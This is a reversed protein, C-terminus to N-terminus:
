RLVEADLLRNERLYEWVVEPVLAVLKAADYGKGRERVLTSSINSTVVEDKYYAHRPDALISGARDWDYGLRHIVHFSLNAAMWEAGRWRHFTQAADSGMVWSFSVGPFAPLLHDRLIEATERTERYIRPGHVVEFDCAKLRPYRAIARRVMELRHEAPMLKKGWPHEGAILFWVEDADSLALVELALTLHANTIPNASVGLLAVKRGSLRADLKAVTARVAAGLDVDQENCLQLLAWALDGAEAALHARDRHHALQATQHSLDRLREALITAGFSRAHSQLVLASLAALTDDPPM